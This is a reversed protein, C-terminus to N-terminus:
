SCAMCTTAAPNAELKEEEIKKGCKACVGYTGEEIKKLADVVEKLREELTELVGENTTQEEYKDAIMDPELEKNDLKDTHVEWNGEGINSLTGIANMSEILRDQEKLLKDKFHAINM